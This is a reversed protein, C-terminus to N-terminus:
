KSLEKKIAAYREAPSPANESASETSLRASSADMKELIELCHATDGRAYHYELACLAANAAATEEWMARSSESQLLEAQTREMDAELENHLAQLARLEDHLELLRQEADEMSEMAAISTKLEGIVEQNSRHTMLFSYGILLLAASFLIAIYVFVSKQNKGNM